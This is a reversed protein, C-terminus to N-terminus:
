CRCGRGGCRRGSQRERPSLIRYEREYLLRDIAFIKELISRRQAETPHATLVLEISLNTLFQDTERFPIRAQRIKQIIHEISGPQPVGGSEYARKRRVRHKEEALNVLQFYVTFARIVKTRQVDSLSRIKELFKEELLPNYRRRLEIASKRISEVLDFFPVGEQDILVRGLCAGLYRVEQHLPKIKEEFTKEQRELLITSM